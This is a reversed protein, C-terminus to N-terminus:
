QRQQYWVYCNQQCGMLGSAKDKPLHEMAWNVEELLHDLELMHFTGSPKDQTTKHACLEEM